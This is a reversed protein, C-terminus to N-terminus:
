RRTRCQPDASAPRRSRRPPSHGCVSSNSPVASPSRQSAANVRVRRRECDAAPVHRQGARRAVDAVCREGGLVDQQLVHRLTWPRRRRLEIVRRQRGVALGGAHDDVTLPIRVVEGLDRRLVLVGIQGAVRHVPDPNLPRQGRVAGGVAVVAALERVGALELRGRVVQPDARAVVPGVHDALVREVTVRPRRHGRRDRAVLVPRVADRLDAQEDLVVVAARRGLDREVGEPDVGLAAALRPVGGRRARRM